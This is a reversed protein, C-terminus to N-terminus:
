IQGECKIYQSMANFILIYIFLVLDIDFNKACFAKLNYGQMSITYDFRIVIFHLWKIIAYITDNKGNLTSWCFDVKSVRCFCKLHM